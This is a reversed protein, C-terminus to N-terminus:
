GQARQAYEYTQGDSGDGQADPTHMQDRNQRTVDISYTLAVYQM